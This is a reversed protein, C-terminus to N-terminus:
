RAIDRGFDAARFRLKSVQLTKLTGNALQAAVFMQQLPHSIVSKGFHGTHPMDGASLTRLLPIFQPEASTRQELPQGPTRAPNEYGGAPSAAALCLNALHHSRM